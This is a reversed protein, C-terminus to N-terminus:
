LIVCHFHHIISSTIVKSTSMRPFQRRISSIYPDNRFTKSTIQVLFVPSRHLGLPSIVIYIPNTYSLKGRSRCSDPRFSFPKSGYICPCPWITRAPYQLWCERLLECLGFLHRLIPPYSQDNSAEGVPLNRWVMPECTVHLFRSARPPPSHTWKPPFGSSRRGRSVHTPTWWRNFGKRPLLPLPRYYITFLSHTRPWVLSELAVFLSPQLIPSTNHDTLNLYTSM